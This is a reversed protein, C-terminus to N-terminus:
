GAALAGDVVSPYSGCTGASAILAALRVLALTQPDRCSGGIARDSQALMSAVLQEDNLALRRLTQEHDAM